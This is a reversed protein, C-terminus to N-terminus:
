ETNKVPDPSTVDACKVRSATDFKSACIKKESQTLEEYYPERYIDNAKGILKKYNVQVFRVLDSIKYNLALAEKPSLLPKSHSIFLHFRVFLRLLHVCGYIDCNRLDKSDSNSRLELFQSREEKYLLLTPLTEDFLLLIKEVAFRWSDIKSQDLRYSAVKEEIFNEICSQVTVQAPLNHLLRGNWFWDKDKGDDGILYGWERAIREKDEMLIIKLTLPLNALTNNEPKATENNTSENGDCDYYDDDSLKRRKRKKQDAKWKAKAKEQDKAIKDEKKRAEAKERNESTYPLLKDRTVWRDWNKNWGIYHVLYLDTGTPMGNRVIALDADTKSLYVTNSTPLHYAHRTKKHMSIQRVVAEYLGKGDESFIRSGVEVKKPVLNSAESSAQTKTKGSKKTQHSKKEVKFGEM